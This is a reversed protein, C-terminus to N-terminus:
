HKLFQGIMVGIDSSQELLSVGDGFVMTIQDNPVDRVEIFFSRELHAGDDRLEDVDVPLLYFLVIMLNEEGTRV